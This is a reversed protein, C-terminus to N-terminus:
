SQKNLEDNPLVLTPLVPINLKKAIPRMVAAHHARVLARYRMFVLMWVAAAQICASVMVALSPLARDVWFLAALMPQGAAHLLQPVVLYLFVIYVLAALDPRGIKKYAFNFYLIIAVDRLLYAALGMIIFSQENPKIVVAFLAAVLAICLMIIWVPVVALGESFSRKVASLFTELVIVNKVSFFLATYTTLGALMFLSLMVAYVSSDAAGQGGSAAGSAQNWLAGASGGFFFGCALLVLVALLSQGQGTLCSRIVAYAAAFAMGALAALLMSYFLVGPISLGYWLVPMVQRSVLRVDVVLGGFSQMIFALLLAVLAHILSLQTKNLRKLSAFVLFCSAINFLFGICVLLFVILILHLASVFDLQLLVVAGVVLATLLMLFWSLLPAGFLKGLLFHLPAVVSSQQWVWINANFDAMVAESVMKGGWLFGGFTVFLFGLNLTDRLISSHQAADTNSVMGSDGLWVAAFPLASFYVAAFISLVLFAILIFPLVGYELAYRRFEAGMM